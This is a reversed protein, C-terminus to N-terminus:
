KSSEEKGIQNDAQEKLFDLAQEVIQENITSEQIRYMVEEAVANALAAIRGAAIEDVVLKALRKLNM